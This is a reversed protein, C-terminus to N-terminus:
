PRPPTGEQPEVRIWEPVRSELSDVRGPVAFLGAISWVKVTRHRYGLAGLDQRQHEITSAKFHGHRYLVVWTRWPSMQNLFGLAGLDALLLLFLIAPVVMVRQFGRLLRFSSVVLIPSVIACAFYVLSKLSGRSMEVWGMWDLVFLAYMLGAMGVLGWALRSSRRGSAVELSLDQPSERLPGASM